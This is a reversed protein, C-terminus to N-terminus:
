AFVIKMIGCCHFPERNSGALLVLVRTDIAVPCSVKDGLFLCRTCGRPRQATGSRLPLLTCAVLLIQYEETRHPLQIISPGRLSRCYQRWYPLFVFFFASPTVLGPFFILVLTALFWRKIAVNHPVVYM